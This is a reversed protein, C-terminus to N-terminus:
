MAVQAKSCLNKHLKVCIKQPNNLSPYLVGMKHEGVSIDMNVQMSDM